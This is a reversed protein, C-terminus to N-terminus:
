NLGVAAPETLPCNVTLLLEDFPLEDVIRSLPVPTEFVGASEDKVQALEDMVPAPDSAHETVNAPAAGFPPRLTPM